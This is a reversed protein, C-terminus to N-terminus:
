EPTSSSNLHLTDQDFHMRLRLYFGKAVHRAESYQGDSLGSFNYGLSIWAADAVKVGISAGFGHSSVQANSSYAGFM